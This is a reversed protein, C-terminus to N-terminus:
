CLPYTGNPSHPEEENLEDLSSSNRKTGSQGNLLDFNKTNSQASPSQENQDELKPMGDAMFKPLLQAFLMENPLTGTMGNANAVQAMFQQQMAFLQKQFAAMQDPQMQPNSSPQQKQDQMLLQAVNM